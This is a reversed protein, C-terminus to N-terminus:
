LPFEESVGLAGSRGDHIARVLLAFRTGRHKLRAMLYLASQYVTANLEFWIKNRVQFQSFFYAGNRTSYYVRYDNEGYLLVNLSNGNIQRLNWSSELDTVRAATVLVIRGGCRVIRNSWETDDGYLVFDERPLGIAAAADRHLLLGSYPAMHMEVLPPLQAPPIPRGWPTRRWLKYPIDLVHFGLFSSPRPNIRWLPVGAAVDPQHEPRYALVALRDHPTSERLEDHARLLAEVAHPQPLNDDDLLFLYEAGLDLARQLGAAYGPASGTNRGMAVVDVFDGYCATLEVCVPWSAGNDVVVARTIGVGRLADLVRILLEARAGYTVIVAMVHRSEPLYKWSVNESESDKRTVRESVDATM